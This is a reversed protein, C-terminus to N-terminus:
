CFWNFGMLIKILGSFGLLFAVSDLFVWFLGAFGM